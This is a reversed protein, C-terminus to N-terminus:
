IGFLRWRWMPFIKIIILCWFLPPFQSWISGSVRSGEQRKGSCREHSTMRIWVVLTGFPPHPQRFCYRFVRLLVRTVPLTFHYHSASRPFHGSVGCCCTTLYRYVEHRRCGDENVDWGVRSLRATPLPSSQRRCSLPCLESKHLCM